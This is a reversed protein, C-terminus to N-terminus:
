QERAQQAVDTQLRALEARVEPLTAAVSDAHAQAIYAHDSAHQATLVYAELASIRERRWREYKWRVSM